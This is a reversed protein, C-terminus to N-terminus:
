PLPDYEGYEELGKSLAAVHVRKDGFVHELATLRSLVHGVRYEATMAIGGHLQIAEQGIHRGATAVQLSARAAADAVDSSDGSERAADLVMTAWLVLSRTLELQVYMDAARFVLAQFNNLTVGFQKRSKLYDTTSELAMAMAGMAEHAAVVRAIDLLRAVVETADGGQGLPQAAVGDFVVKSARGGEHTAYASASVGDASADVLFLGTGGDELAATVVYAAAGGAFLVPEKTGSLTVSDGSGSAKVDVAHADARGGPELHAWALLASGDALSPLHAQRQEDSGAAAVAGGALVVAPIFPEPALVRGMEEAVLGIEVTGAGVGGDEETFPLGLVGMEALQQWTKTSYGEDTRSADRRKEWDGYADNLLDRVAERLARQEDDYEFDM